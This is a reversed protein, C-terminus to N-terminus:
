KEIDLVGPKRLVVAMFSKVWDPHQPQNPEDLRKQWEQDTLRVPPYGSEIVDYYTFVPGVYATSGEDTEAILCIPVTMGTAAHLVRAPALPGDNNPNTHIDVVISPSKDERYFMDVYWGNLIFDPGGCGLNPNKQKVVVGKLFAEEEATFELLVLEKESLSRLRDAVLKINSLYELARKKVNGWYIDDTLFTLGSTQNVANYCIEAYSNLAAYFEPYPEVYGAPYECAIGMTVSQKVYLVNDHRLQAWSALQTQLTKDAWASTRMSQPYQNGTTPTNLERIMSLWQNYVPAQWFDAPLSDTTGRMEALQQEYGYKTLEEQLYALAHDNGLSYMVDMTSPLARLIPKGNKIMRDYVLNGLIYSDVAFRQGILMFSIPRPIPESSTNDPQRFLIQGTIRQNGYDGSTLLELMRKKDAKLVEIPKTLIMDSMLADLDSLKTNDSQGVLAELLTDMEILNTRQSSKDLAEKLIAAAAVQNLHLVPKSTTEDFEVFRFDINGLWSMSRFYQQLNKDEAYHGRPKFITFDIKRSNGFLKVDSISGATVAQTYYAKAAEDDPETGNLLSVAVSLYISVDKFLPELGREHNESDAMDIAIKTRTLLTNLGPIMAYREIDILLDDYSQHISHLISDTTVLVPLDKTYIWAYADIFRDWALRDTVVFGNQKLLSLEETNLSLSKKIESYYRAETPNISIQELYELPISLTQPTLAMKKYPNVSMKNSFPSCSTFIISSTLLIAIIVSIKRM